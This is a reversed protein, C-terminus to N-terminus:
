GLPEGPTLLTQRHQWALALCAAGPPAMPEQTLLRQVSQATFPIGEAARAGPAAAVTLGEANFDVIEGFAEDFVDDDIIVVTLITAALTLADLGVGLCLARARRDARARELTQYLPWRAYDIPTSRSGDHEPTGLLEESMERVVNAWMDFDNVVDQPSVSSPQFEGAPIADYMGGATAVQDPDRWHLLFAATGDPKRRLTLTTIAPIVARQRLDFPDTLARFPLQRWLGGAQHQDALREPHPCAAALEHGIAESVDLKDFYAALGFRLRANGATPWVVELLRYSPRNEFLKPPDLYRVASTYRQYHQGPTRLPCTRQASPETGDITLPQPGDAWELRIEAFDVPHSPLWGPQALLPVRDVHVDMPYLGAAIRALRARHRNLHGRTHRWREVSARVAGTPDDVRRAEDRGPGGAAEDAARLRMSAVLDDSLGLRRPPIGLQTAIHHLLGVDRVQRTGNELKCVYTQTIGLLGALEEQSIGEHSARYRRLLEGLPLLEAEGSEPPHVFLWPAAQAHTM